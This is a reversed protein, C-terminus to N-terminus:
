VATILWTLPGYTEAWFTGPPRLSMSVPATQLHGIAWTTPVTHLSSAESCSEPLTSNLGGTLPVDLGVLIFINQEALQEKTAVSGM